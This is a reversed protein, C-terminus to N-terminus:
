QPGGQERAEAQVLAELVDALRRFLREAAAQTLGGVERLMLHEMEYTWVIRIAHEEM